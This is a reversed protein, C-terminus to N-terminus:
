IWQELGQILTKAWLTPTYQKSLEFSAQSMAAWDSDSLNSIQLMAQALHEANGTEFLYGNYGSQLLHVAAGCADSCILPLGAAAAEQAVVGWPEVKSPLIFAAADHMLVPLEAPQMFGKDDIGEKQLLSKLAGAGATILAWPSSTQRRYLQYAKVLTDIGKREIYRGTYLFFPKGPLRTRATPIAFQEWDCAYFGSWCRAGTYGLKKALQRQREGTVWLVDIASHLYWPAIVAGMQQRISGNYQTDAGAIVPIGKKRIIRAAQLYDNDMWGSILLAQPAFNELLQILQTFTLTSKDYRHDIHAFIQERFPANSAVPWHVVLLEVGYKEKLKRQCAATYGALESSLFAIRQIETKM